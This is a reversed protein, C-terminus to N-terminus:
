PKSKLDVYDPPIVKLYKPTIADISPSEKGNERLYLQEALFVLMTGRAQHEAASSPVHQPYMTLCRWLM